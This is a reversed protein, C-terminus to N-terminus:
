LKRLNIQELTLEKLQPVVVDMSWRREGHKEDCFCNSFPM